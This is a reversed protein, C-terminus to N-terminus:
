MNDLDEFYVPDIEGNELTMPVFEEYGLLRNRTQMAELWTKAEYEHMLTANPSILQRARMDDCSPKPACTIGAGGEWEDDDRWIQILM